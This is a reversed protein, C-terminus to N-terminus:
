KVMASESVVERRLSSELMVSSPSTIPSLPMKYAYCHGFCKIWIKVVFFTEPEVNQGFKPKM